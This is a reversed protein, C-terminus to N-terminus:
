KHKKGESSIYKWSFILMQQRFESTRSCSLAYPSFFFSLFAEACLLPRAVPKLYESWYSRMHFSSMNLCNAWLPVMSSAAQEWWLPLVTPSSCCAPFDHCWHLSVNFMSGLHHFKFSIKCSSSQTVERCVLRNIHLLVHFIYLFSYLRGSGRLGLALALWRLVVREGSFWIQCFPLVQTTNHHRDATFSYKNSQRPVSVPTDCSTGVDTVQGRSQATDVHYRSM